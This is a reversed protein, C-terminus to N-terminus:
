RTSRPAAAPPTWWWRAPRDRRALAPRSALCVGAARLVPRRAPRDALAVVLRDPAVSPEFRRARAFLRRDANRAPRIARPSCWRRAAVSRAVHAREKRRVRSRPCFIFSIRRGLRVWAGSPSVFAIAPSSAASSREGPRDRRRASCSHRARADRWFRTRPAFEEEDAVCACRCGDDAKGAWLDRATIPRHGNKKHSM